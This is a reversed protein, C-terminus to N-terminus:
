PARLKGSIRNQDPGIIVYVYNGQKVGAATFTRKDLNGSFSGSFIRRGSLTYINLVGSRNEYNAVLGASPKLATSVAPVFSVGTIRFDNAADTKSQDLYPSYTKATITGSDPDIELTRLWGNGEDQWDTLLEYVKNGGTGTHIRRASSTVHGCLVMKLNTHKTLCSDWVQQPTLDGYGCGGLTTGSGSLYNHTVYIVNHHPHVTIVSDIWKLAGSRPDLETNVVLWDLGGASFTHYANDTRDSEYRGKCATYRALPFFSNLTTTNRVNNHVNGPGASGGCWCASGDANIGGVARTDHNGVAIAYQLGVSDFRAFGDSGAQYMFNPPTSNPTEWNVLDGVHCIFAINKSVRSAVVWNVMAPWKQMAGYTQANTMESQTDPFVLITFKSASVPASVMLGSLLAAVIAKFKM